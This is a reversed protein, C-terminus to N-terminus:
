FENVENRGLRILYALLVRLFGDRRFMDNAGELDTGKDCGSYIILKHHDCLSPKSDNVSSTSSTKFSWLCCCFTADWWLWTNDGGPLQGRRTDPGLSSLTWVPVTPCFLLLVKPLAASVTRPFCLLIRIVAVIIPRVCSENPESQPVIKTCHTIPRTKAGFQLELCTCASVIDYQLLVGM